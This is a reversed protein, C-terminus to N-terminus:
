SPLHRTPTKFKLTTPKVLIEEKRHIGEPDKFFFFGEM